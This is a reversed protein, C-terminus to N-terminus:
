RSDREEQAGQFKWLPLRGHVSVRQRRPYFHCYSVLWSNHSVCGSDSSVIHAPSLSFSYCPILTLFHSYGFAMEYFLCRDLAM